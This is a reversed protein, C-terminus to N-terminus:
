DFIIAFERELDYLNGNDLAITLTHKPRPKIPVLWCVPKGGYETTKSALWCKEKVSTSPILCPLVQNEIRLTGGKDDLYGVPKDTSRYLLFVRDGSVDRFIRNWATAMIAHMTIDRDMVNLLGFKAEIKRQEKLYLVYKEVPDSEFVAVQIAPPYLDAMKLEPKVAWWIRPNQIDGGM